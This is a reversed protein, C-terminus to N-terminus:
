NQPTAKTEKAFAQFLRRFSETLHRLATEATRTMLSLLCISILNRHSFHPRASLPSGTRQSIFGPSGYPESRAPRALAVGGTSLWRFRRM